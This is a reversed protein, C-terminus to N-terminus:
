AQESGLPSKKGGSLKTLKQEAMKIGNFCSVTNDHESFQKSAKWGGGAL